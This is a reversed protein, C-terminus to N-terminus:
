KTRPVIRRTGDPLIQVDYGKDSGSPEAPTVRPAPATQAPAASLERAALDGAQEYTSGNRLHEAAKAVFADIDAGKVPSKWFEYWAPRTPAMEAYLDKLKTVMEPPPPPVPSSGGFMRYVQARAQANVWQRAVTNSPKVGAQEAGFFRNEYVKGLQLTQDEVRLQNMISDAASAGGTARLMTLYADVLANDKLWPGYQGFLGLLQPNNMLDKMSGVKLGGSLMLDSLKAAAETQMKVRQNNEDVQQQLVKARAKTEDIQAQIRPGLWKSEEGLMKEQARLHDVQAYLQQLEWNARQPSLKAVELKFPAMNAELEAATKASLVDYPAKAAGTEAVTKATSVRWPMMQEGEEATTKAQRLQYPFLQAKQAAEERAQGMQEERQQALQGKEAGEYFGKTTQETARALADALFIPWM